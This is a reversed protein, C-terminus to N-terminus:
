VFVQRSYIFKELRKCSEKRDSHDDTSCLYERTAECVSKVVTRHRYKTENIQLYKAVLLARLDIVNLFKM